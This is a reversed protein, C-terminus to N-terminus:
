GTFSPLEVRMRDHEVNCFVNPDFAKVERKVPAPTTTTTTTTSTTTTTTSPSTTSTTHPAPNGGMTYICGHENQCVFGDKTDIYDCDKGYWGSSCECWYNDWKNICGKTGDAFCPSDLECHHLRNFMFQNARDRDEFIEMAEDIDCVEENCERELDASRFEETGDHTNARDLIIIHM